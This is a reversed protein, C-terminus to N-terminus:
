FKNKVKTWLRRFGSQEAAYVQGAMLEGMIVYDGSLRIELPSDTKEPVTFEQTDFGIYSFVLVEGQKVKQPFEFRGEADAMTGISSGKLVINAGQLPLGDEQSLVLGKLIRETGPVVKKEPPRKLEEVTETQTKPAITQASTQKSILVLLLSILGAKLLMLGPNIKVPTTRRYIKLQEPRFRGCTHDQKGTLFDIIEDDGMKTFDVVTKYCSSCFGGNSTPTFNEWKEACPQPVFLNLNKKM